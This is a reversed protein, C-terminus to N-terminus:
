TLFLVSAVAAASMSLYNAASFAILFTLPGAENGNYVRITRTDGQKVSIVDGIQYGDVEVGLNTTDDFVVRGVAQTADITIDIHTNEELRKTSNNWDGYQDQTFAFEVSDDGNSSDCNEILDLKSGLIWGNEGECRRNIYLWADQL